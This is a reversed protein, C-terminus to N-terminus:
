AIYIFIFFLQTVFWSEHMRVTLAATTGMQRSYKKAAMALKGEMLELKLNCGTSACAMVKFEPGLSTPKDPLYSLHPLNGTSSIQPYYGVMSEDYVLTNCPRILQERNGNFEEILSRIRWWPDSHQTSKDNWILPFYKVFDKWKTLTLKLRFNPVQEITAYGRGGIEVTNSGNPLPGTTFLKQGRQSVCAAGIM